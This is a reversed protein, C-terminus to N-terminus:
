TGTRVSPDTHIAGAFVPRLAALLSAPCIPSMAAHSRAIVQQRHAHSCSWTSPNNSTCGAASISRVSWDNRAQVLRLVSALRRLISRSTASICVSSPEALTSRAMPIYSIISPARTPSEISACATTSTTSACAAMMRVANKFSAKGLKRQEGDQEVRMSCSCVVLLQFPMGCPSRSGSAPSPNSACTWAMPSSILKGIIMQSTCVAPVGM